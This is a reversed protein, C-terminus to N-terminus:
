SGLSKLEQYLKVAQKTIEEGQRDLEKLAQQIEAKRKLNESPKFYQKLLDNEVDSYQEFNSDFNVIVEDRDLIEVVKDYLSSGYWGNAVGCVKQMRILDGLPVEFKHEDISVKILTDQNMLRYKNRKEGKELFRKTKKKLYVRSGNPEYVATDPEIVVGEAEKHKEAGDFDERILKSTFSEEVALAEEFTNYIGILPTVPINYDKELTLTTLKNLPSSLSGDENIFLMDFAVFDQELKYCMGSQINGGYLEGYIVFDDLLDNRLNELMPRYKEMVSKYDFFKEGEEIWGSRKACKVDIKGSESDKYVWFSFNAGHVKETVVWKDKIDMMLIKDIEKQRYTNELSPFKTFQKTM